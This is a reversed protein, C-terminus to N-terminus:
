HTEVLKQRRWAGGYLSFFPPTGKMRKHTSACTSSRKTHPTSWVNRWTEKTGREGSLFELRENWPVMSSGGSRRMEEQAASSHTLAETLLDDDGFHFSLKDCLKEKAESAKIKMPKQSTLANKNNMALVLKPPYKIKHSWSRAM